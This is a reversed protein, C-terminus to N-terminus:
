DHNNYVLLRIGRGGRKGRRKEKEKGKLQEEQDEKYVSPIEGMYVVYLICSELKKEKKRWNLCCLKPYFTKKEDEKKRM